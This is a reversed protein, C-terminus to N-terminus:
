KNKIMTWKIRKSNVNPIKTSKTHTETVNTEYVKVSKILNINTPFIIRTPSSTFDDLKQEDYPNSVIM